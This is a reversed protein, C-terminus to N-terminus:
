DEDMSKLTLFMLILINLTATSGITLGVVLKMGKQGAFPTYTFLGIFIFSIDYVFGFYTYINGNKGFAYAGAYLLHIFYIVMSLLFFLNYCRWKKAIEHQSNAINLM